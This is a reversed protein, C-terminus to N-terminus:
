SDVQASIESFYASYTDLASTYSRIASLIQRFLSLSLTMNLTDIVFETLKKALAPPSGRFYEFSISRLLNVLTSSERSSVYFHRNFAPHEEELKAKEAPHEAEVLFM